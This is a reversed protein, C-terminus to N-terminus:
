IKVVFVEFIVLNRRRVLIQQVCQVVPVLHSVFTDMQSDWFGQKCECAVHLSRGSALNRHWHGDPNVPVCQSIWSLGQSEEGQM